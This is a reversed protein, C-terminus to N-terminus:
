EGGGADEDNPTPEPTSEGYSPQSEIPEMTPAPSAESTSEGYPPQSETPETTPAPSAEPTSEGYPPQSETPETTPAPSAEPTPTIEPVAVAVAEAQITVMISRTYGPKLLGGPIFLTSNEFDFWPQGDIREGATYVSYAQKNITVEITEPLAYGEAARLVICRTGDRLTEDELAIHDGLKYTTTVPLQVPPLGIVAGNKMGSIERGAAKMFGAAAPIYEGWYAVFTLKDEQALLDALEDLDLGDPIGNEYTFTFTGDKAIKQTHYVLNKDANMFSVLCYGQSATSENDPTITVRYSSNYNFEFIAPFDEDGDRYARQTLPDGVPVHPEVSVDMQQVEITCSFRAANLTAVNGSVTSTFWAWTTGALCALCLAVSLLSPLVLRLINGDRRKTHKSNSCFIKLV